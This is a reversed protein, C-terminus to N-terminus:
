DKMFGFRLDTPQEGYLNGCYKIWKYMELCGIVGSGIGEGSNNWNPQLDSHVWWTGKQPGFKIM